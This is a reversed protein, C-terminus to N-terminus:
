MLSASRPAPASCVLLRSWVPCNIFRLHCSSSPPFLFSLVFLTTSSSPRCDCPGLERRRQSFILYQDIWSTNSLLLCCPAASFLQCPYLYIYVDFQSPAPCVPFHSFQSEKDNKISCKSNSHLCLEGMMPLLSLGSARFMLVILTFIAGTLFVSM